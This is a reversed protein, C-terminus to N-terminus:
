PRRRRLPTFPSDAFPSPRARTQLRGIAYGACLAAGLMTWPHARTQHLPSLATTTQDVMRDVGYTTKKLMRLYTTTLDEAAELIRRELGVLKETITVGPRGVPTVDERLVSTRQDM